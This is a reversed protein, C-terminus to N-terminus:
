QNLCLGLNDLQTGCGTQLQVDIPQQCDLELTAACNLYADYADGCGSTEAAEVERTTESLCRSKSFPTSTAEHCLRSNECYAETNRERAGDTGADTAPSGGGGGAETCDPAMCLLALPILLFPATHSGM